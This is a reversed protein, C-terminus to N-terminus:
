AFWIFIFPALVRLMSKVFFFVFGAVGIRRLLGTHNELALAKM